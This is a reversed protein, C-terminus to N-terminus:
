ASLGAADFEAKLHPYLSKWRGTSSSYIPQRVQWRSPTMIPRSTQHFNLCHDNWDLSADQVLRRVVQDPNAVLEEYNVEALRMAPIQRWHDLLRDCQRYYFATDALDTAYQQTQSFNECYISLSTDRIDRRCAIITARPYMLRLLGANFVNFPLKDTLRLKSIAAMESQHEIILDQLSDKTLDACAEPWDEISAILDPLKAVLRPVHPLEGGAEVEPHSALIQEVLTTGSRPMGVIFIPATEAQSWGECQQFLEPSFAAVLRDVREVLRDRDMAGWEKRRLHNAARLHGAAAAHDKEKLALKALSYNLVARDGVPVAPDAALRAAHERRPESIEKALLLWKALPYAWDPNEEMLSLYRDTSLTREGFDEDLEALLLRMERPGQGDALHEQLLEQAKTPLGHEIHLEALMMICAAEDKAALGTGRQDLLLIAAGHEGDNRLRRALELRLDCRGPQSRLAAQLSTRSQLQIAPVSANVHKHM